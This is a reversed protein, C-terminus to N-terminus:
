ASKRGCSLSCRQPCIVEAVPDESRLQGLIVRDIPAEKELIKGAIRRAKVAGDSVDVKNLLAVFRSSVPCGKLLGQPHTMLLAMAEETIRGWVPIGTVESVREERFVGKGALAEGLGDMGLLAVVLTTASPIVPEGERPAKIPRGAAGDAEIILYDMEGQNWLEVLLSPSIGRLKGGGLREGAITLHRYTPLHLAVFPAIKEEEPEVLVCPSEGAPPELIKTTTTTIVKKGALLLEKALRFMLTTKGGAGVLAIMERPQLGLAKSLLAKPGDETAAEELFREVVSRIAKEDM